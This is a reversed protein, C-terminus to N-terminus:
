TRSVWRKGTPSRVCSRYCFAANTRTWGAQLEKIMRDRAEILAALEVPETTMGVFKQTRGFTGCNHFCFKM